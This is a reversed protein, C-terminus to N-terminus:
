FASLKYQVRVTAQVEIDSPAINAAAQRAEGSSDGEMGAKAYYIVPGYNFDQSEVSVLAGLNKGVGAATAEAKKKADKGAEELAQAKLESQKEDSLEFNIGSVLAGGNVGADVIGATKDFDNTKVILNQTVIYGKLRQSGGSWDYDPYMNYNDTKIEKRELGTKLLEIIVKDVIEDHMQKATQADKDTTQITLYVSVEDPMVEISSQGTASVLTGTSSYALYGGVLIVAIVLFIVINRNEMM